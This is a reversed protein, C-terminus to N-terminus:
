DRTLRSDRHAMSQTIAYSNPSRKGPLQSDLILSQADGLKTSIELIKSSATIRWMQYGTGFGCGVAERATSDTVLFVRASDMRYCHSDFSYGYALVVSATIGVTSVIKLELDTAIGLGVDFHASTENGKADRPNLEVGYLIIENAIYRKKSPAPVYEDTM